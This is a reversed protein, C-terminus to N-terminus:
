PSTTTSTSTSSSLAPTQPVNAASNLMDQNVPSIHNTPPVNRLGTLWHSLANSKLSQVTASDLPHQPDIAIVRVIDYTGTVEKVIGSMEGVKRGPAFLWAELGQDQQGRAAWGMDGGNDRSNVDLSDKKALANWQSPDKQLIKLDAQAQSLSEFQIRAFHVQLTPSTILSQQYQDMANRRLVVAISNKVDGDGIHNQSEFNSLSQGAPFAKKFAVYAANLQSPTVTLAARAKPDSKIYGPTAQQILQDEILDNIALQDIQTQTFSTQYNSVQTQAAQLQAKLAAQKTPDKEAAIQANLQSVQAQAAQLKNWNDQALYAVMYRYDKQPINVGNVTVIPLNPQIININVVGFVAVLVIVAAVVGAFIFYLKRQLRTRQAASLNRGLGLLVPRSERRGEIVAAVRGDRRRNRGPQYRGTPRKAASSSGQGAATPTSKVTEKARSTKSSSPTM